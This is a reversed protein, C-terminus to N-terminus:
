FSDLIQLTQSQVDPGALEGTAPNVGATGGITIVSGVKAIHSYPRDSDAHQPSHQDRGEARRHEEIAFTDDRGITASSPRTRRDPRHLRHDGLFKRPVNAFM